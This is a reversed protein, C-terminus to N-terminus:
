CGDDWRDARLQRWGGPGWLSWRRICFMIASLPELPLMGMAQTQLVLSLSLCINGTTATVGLVKKSQPICMRTMWGGIHGPQKCAAHMVSLANVSSGQCTAPLAEYILIQKSLVFGQLVCDKVFQARQVKIETVGVWVFKSSTGPGVRWSKNIGNGIFRDSDEPHTPHSFM